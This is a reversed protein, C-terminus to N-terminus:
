MINTIFATQSLNKIQITGSTRITKNVVASSNNTEKTIRFVEDEGSERDKVPVFKLDETNVLFMDGPRCDRDPIFRLEAGGMTSAVFAVPVGGLKEAKLEGQSVFKTNQMKKFVGNIALPNLIIANLEAGKNVMKAIFLDLKQEGLDKEADFINGGYKTILDKLGSMTHRGTDPDFKGKGYLCTRNLEQGEENIKALTEEAELQTFDKQSLDIARKTLFVSKTTEQLYNQIEKSITKKYDETVEGEAEPKSVVYVVSGNEHTSKPSDAYGRAFVEITNNGTNASKVMVYEDGISLVHGKSVFKALEPNVTMTTSSGDLQATLKGDDLVHFKEYHSVKESILNEGSPKFLDLTPTPKDKLKVLGLIQEKVEFNRLFHLM